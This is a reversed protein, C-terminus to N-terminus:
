KNEQQKAAFDKQRQEFDSFSNHTDGTTPQFTCATDEYENELLKRVRNQADNYLRDAVDTGCFDSSRNLAAM